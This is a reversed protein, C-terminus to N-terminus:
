ADSVQVNQLLQSRVSLLMGRFQLLFVKRSFSIAEVKVKQGKVFGLEILRFVQRQTGNEVKEITQWSGKKAKDLTKMYYVIQLRM